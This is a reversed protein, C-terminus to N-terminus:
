NERFRHSKCIAFYLLHSGVFMYLCLFLNRFLFVYRFLNSEFPGKTQLLELCRNSPSLLLPRAFTSPHARIQLHLYTEIWIIIYTNPSQAGIFVIIRIYTDNVWIFAGVSNVKSVKGKTTRWFQPQRAMCLLPMPMARWAVTRWTQARYAARQQKLERWKLKISHSPNLKTVNVNESDYVNESSASVCLVVCCLVLCCLVCCLEENRAGESVYNARRIITNWVM